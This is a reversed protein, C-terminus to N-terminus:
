FRLEVHLEPDPRVVRGNEDRYARLRRYTVRQIVVRLLANTEKVPADPRQLADLAAHLSTEVVEAGAARDAASRAETLADSCAALERNNKELLRDFVDRPMDEALKEWLADQKTLLAEHRAALLRVRGSAAAATDNDPGGERVTRDALEARLAEAIERLLVDITCGANGCRTQDKCHIRIGRGKTQAAKVMVSGCECYVLGALPNQIDLHSRVPPLHRASRARQVEDWLEQPVIAPHRGPYLPADKRMARQKKLEGEIVVRELKRHDYRVLGLYHPNDLIRYIVPPRWVDAARPPVGSDNLAQCIAAAGSGAAYMRFMLLVADAEAPVPELTHVSRRGEKVTTKRYGYPPQSGVYWGREVCARLGNQMIKRTYELYDNGRMLERELYDRDREDALDFAGQPTLLLTGTYRFTKVIRGIDELDGRSLRQPDFVLVARFRPQEILRLVKQVEPRADITEGSVIERYRNEQPVLQGWTRLAYEDLRQEHLSLTEEVSLAPDDTRSKRLYILVDDANLNPLTFM